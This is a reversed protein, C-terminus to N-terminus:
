KKQPIARLVDKVDDRVEELLGRMDKIEQGQRSSEAGLANCEKLTWAAISLAIMTLAGIAWGALQAKARESM